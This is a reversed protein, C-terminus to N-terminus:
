EAFAGSRADIFINEIIHVLPEDHERAGFTM